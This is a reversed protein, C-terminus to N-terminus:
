QGIDIRGNYDAWAKWDVWGGNYLDVRKYMDNLKTCIIGSNRASSNNDNCDYALIELFYLTCGASVNLELALEKITKIDADDFRINSMCKTLLGQTWAIIVKDEEDSGPPDGNDRRYDILIVYFRKTEKKVEDRTMAPSTNKVAVEESPHDDIITDELEKNPPLIENQTTSAVFSDETPVKVVESKSKKICSLLSISLILLLGIIM